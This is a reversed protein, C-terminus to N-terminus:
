RPTSPSAPSATSTSWPWGRPVSLGAVVAQRAADAGPVLLRDLGPVATALDARSVATYIEGTAGAIGVAAVVVAVLLGILVTAAVRGVRRWRM